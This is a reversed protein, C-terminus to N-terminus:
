VEKPDLLIVIKNDPKVELFGSHVHITKEIGGIIKFRVPASLLQTILPIHNRLVTIEGSVTKAIIEEIDGDFIIKELSYISLHM